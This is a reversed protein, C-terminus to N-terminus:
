LLFMLLPSSSVQQPSTTHDPINIDSTFGPVFENVDGLHHLINDFLRTNRFTDAIEIDRMCGCPDRDIFPCVRTYLTIDLIGEAPDDRMIEVIGVPFPIGIGM